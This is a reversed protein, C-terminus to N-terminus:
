MTTLAPLKITEDNLYISKSPLLLGKYYDEDFCWGDDTLVKSVLIKGDCITIKKKPAFVHITPYYDNDKRGIICYLSKGFCDVWTSMTDYDIASYGVSQIEGLQNDAFFPHTHLFGVVNGYKEEQDMVAQWDFEVGCSNGMTFNSLEIEDWMLSYSEKAILLSYIEYTQNPNNM